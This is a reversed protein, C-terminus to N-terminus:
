STQYSIKYIGLLRFFTRVFSKYPFTESAHSLTCDCSLKGHGQFHGVVAHHFKSQPSSTADEQRLTWSLIDQSASCDERSLFLFNSSQKNSPIDLRIFFRFRMDRESAGEFSMFLASCRMEIQLNTFIAETKSSLSAVSFRCVILRM